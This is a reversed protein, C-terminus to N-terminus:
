LHMINFNCGCVCFLHIFSFSRMNIKMIIIMQMINMQYLFREIMNIHHCPLKLSWIMFVEFQHIEHMLIVEKKIILNLIKMHPLFNMFSLHLYMICLSSYDYQNRSLIM